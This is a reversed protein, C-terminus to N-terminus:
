STSRKWPMSSTLPEIGNPDVLASTEVDYLEGFPSNQTIKTVKQGEIVFNSFVKQVADDLESMLTIEKIRVALNQFLEIFKEYSPVVDRQKEKADKIRVLLEETKERQKLLDSLDNGYEKRLFPDRSESVAHKTSFIKDKIRKLEATNSRLQIDFQIERESAIRHMEKIYAAYGKKFNMPHTDLFNYIADLIVRARVSRPKRKCSKADCRFYYYRKVSRDSGQKTTIGTSMIRGCEGCIVSGRLFDAQVTGRTKIKKALTSRKNFGNDKTLEDYESPLILPQFDFKEFLNVVNKGFIYAGAYFPDRFLESLFNDTIKAPRRSVHGTKVPFNNDSLWTAIERLSSKGYLRMEFARKLLKWNEGDPRAYGNEDKYYGHKPRDFLKGEETIRVVSRHINQSHQDSYQKAMVFAIGLLMKNSPENVYTHGNAFKLDKIAGKDLMDIIEGAEKMNRALRDPSWVIIGDYEGKDIKRLMEDFLKRNGSIKASKEEHIPPEIVKLKLRAALARCEHLQDGISREQKESQDTSKRLYIVYRLNDVHPKEETSVGLQRKIGEVIADVQKRITEELMYVATYGRM